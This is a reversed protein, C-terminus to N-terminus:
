VQHHCFVPLPTLTTSRLCLTAHPSLSRVECKRQLTACRMQQSTSKHSICIKSTSWQFGNVRRIILRAQGPPWAILVHTQPRESAPITPEFETPPMSTQRSHNKNTTVCLERHRASWEDLPTRGLTRHTYTHTDSIANLPLLLRCM